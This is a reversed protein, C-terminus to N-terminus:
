ETPRRESTPSVRLGAVFGGILGAIFGALHAGVDVRQGGAGYLALVTVGAAFPAFMARWRHPHRSGWAVRVTRGTLLGVGAFIATSAGLSAYPGPFNIVAVALNGAVAAGLLLLWGRLRGLTSLVAPFVLLGGLANTIVHAADAHLFLATAARWVEGQGFVARADLVGWETWAAATGGQQYLALVTVAWLLPTIYEFKGPTWPDTIPPPPWRRSERDYAALHRRVLDAGEREVLLRFGGPGPELWYPNGTALVVLGHAAGQEATAYTGAEVLADDTAITGAPSLEPASM